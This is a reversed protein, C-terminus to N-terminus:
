KKLIIVDGENANIELISFDNGDIDTYTCSLGSVTVEYGDLLTMPEESENWLMMGQITLIYVSNDSTRIAWVTGQIPEDVVPIGTLVLTGICTMEEAQGAQPNLCTCATGHWTGTGDDFTVNITRGAKEMEKMWAKLEDRNQTIITNPTTSNDKIGKTGVSPRTNCFTVQEGSRAMECFQDLLADWEAETSLHATTGSFSPMGPIESVSYFIDREHSVEEPDHNVNVPTKECSAFCFVVALVAFLRSFYKM